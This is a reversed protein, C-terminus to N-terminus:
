NIVVAAASSGFPIPRDFIDDHEEEAEMAKLRRVLAAKEEDSDYGSSSSIM